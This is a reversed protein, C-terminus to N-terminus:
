KREEPRGRRASSSSLRHSTVGAGVRSRDSVDSAFRDNSPGPGAFARELRYLITGIVAGIPVQLVLWLLLLYKM